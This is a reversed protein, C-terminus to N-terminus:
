NKYKLINLFFLFAFSSWIISFIFSFYLFSFYTSFDGFIYVSLIQGSRLEEFDVEVPYFSSSFYFILLPLFFFPSCAIAQVILERENFEKKPIGSIQNDKDAYFFLYFSVLYSFYLFYFCYVMPIEYISALNDLVISYVIIFFYSTSWTYEYFRRRKTIKSKYFLFILLVFSVIGFSLISNGNYFISILVMALYTVIMVNLFVNNKKM